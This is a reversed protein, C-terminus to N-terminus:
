RAAALMTQLWAMQSKADELANYVCEHTRPVRSVAQFTRLCRPARYVWPREFGCTLYANELVPIHYTAALVWLEGSFPEISTPDNRLWMAFEILATRLEEGKSDALALRATESQRLWWKITGTDMTLGHDVCDQLDINIFFPERGDDAVAGIQLLAANHTLGMTEVDVM